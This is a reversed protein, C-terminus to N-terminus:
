DSNLKNWYNEISGNESIVKNIFENYKEDSIIERSLEYDSENKEIKFSFYENLKERYEQFTEPLEYLSMLKETDIGYSKLIDLVSNQNKEIFEIDVGSLSEKLENLTILKLELENLDSIEQNFKKKFNLILEDIDAIIEKVESNESELENSKIEWYNAKESDKMPCDNHNLLESNLTKIQELMEIKEDIETQTENIKSLITDAIGDLKVTEEYLSKLDSHTESFMTSKSKLKEVISKATKSNEIGTMQCFDKASIKNSIVAIYAGKQKFYYELTEKLSSYIAGNKGECTTIKVADEKDFDIFGLRSAYDIFFGVALDINKGLLLNVRSESSLIIDADSNQAVVSTVKGQKDVSFIISPNVDVLVASALPKANMRSTIFIPIIAIVVLIVALCSAFIAKVKKNKLDVM